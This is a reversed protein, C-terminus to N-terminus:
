GEPPQKDNSEPRRAPTTLAVLRLAPSLEAANNQFDQLFKWWSRTM